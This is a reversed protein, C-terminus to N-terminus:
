YLMTLNKGTPIAVVPGLPPLLGGGAVGLASIPLSRKLIINSDEISIDDSWLGEGETKVYNELAAFSCFISFASSSSM